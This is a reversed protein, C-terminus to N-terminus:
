EGGPMDGPHADDLFAVRDGVVIGVLLPAADRHGERHRRDLPTVGLDVHEVRRAGRVEDAVEAVRDARGVGHDEHDRRDVADLHLGFVRPLERDFLAQRPRDEHVLEVALPRVELAREGLEDRAEAILDRREFERDARLGLETPDGVEQVLLGVQVRASRLGLLRLPGVVEVRHGVGRALLQDLGDRLGVVRQDLLVEVAAGEGLFVDHRARLVPERPRAEGRHDAARRRPRDADVPQQVEDDFLEWRRGVAVAMVTTPLPSMSSVRSGSAEAGSQANTKLVTDSGNTPWM